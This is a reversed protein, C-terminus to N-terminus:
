AVGVGTLLFYLSGASVLIGIGMYLPARRNYHKVLGSEDRDSILFLDTGTDKVISLREVNSGTSGERPEAAGFVYVEADAPLVQHSFKRRRSRNPKSPVNRGGTFADAIEKGRGFLARIRGIPGSGYDPEPEPERFAGAVEDPDVDDRLRGEELYEAPLQDVLADRQRASLAEHGESQWAEIDAKTFMTGLPTERFVAYIEATPDRDHAAETFFSQVNGPLGHGEGITITTKNAGSIEFDAGEDAEVLVRGTDDEVFFPTVDSGSAVTVWKKEVTRNGKEDTTVETREEQISWRRFVCEGDGFPVAFTEGAPVVRGHVETRGLAISRTPETPTNMILRGIQYKKFGVYVFAVGVLFAVSLVVYGEVGFDGSSQLVAPAGM